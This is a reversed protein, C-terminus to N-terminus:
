VEEDTLERVIVQLAIAVGGIKAFSADDLDRAVEMLMDALYTLRDPLPRRRIEINMGM